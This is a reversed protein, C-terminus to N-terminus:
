RWHAGRSGSSRKGWFSILVARLGRPQGLFGERNSPCSYQFSALDSINRAYQPETFIEHIRMSAPMYWRDCQDTVPEAAASIGAAITISEPLFLLLLGIGRLSSWDRLSCFRASFIIGPPTFEGTRANRATPPSGGNTTRPRPAWMQSASPLSYTLEIPDHRRSMRPWAAWTTTSARPAAMRLPVLKPAEVGASASRASSTRDAKGCMCFTRKTLEPVSAVMDAM